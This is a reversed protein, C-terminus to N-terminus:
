ISPAAIPALCFTVVMKCSISSIDAVLELGAWLLETLCAAQSRWFLMPPAFLSKLSFGNLRLIHGEYGLSASNVWQSFFDYSLQYFWSIVTVRKLFKVSKFTIGPYPRIFHLHAPDALKPSHVRCCSHNKCGEEAMPHGLFGLRRPPPWSGAERDLHINLNNLLASRDASGHKLRKHEKCLFTYISPWKGFCYFACGLVDSISLM